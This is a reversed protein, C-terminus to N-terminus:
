RPVGQGRADDLDIAARRAEWQVDLRGLALEAESRYADLLELLSAEGGRYAAEALRSPDGDDAEAPIQGLSALAAVLRARSAERNRLARASERRLAEDVRAREARLREIEPGDANWLGLPLSLSLVAGHGTAQGVQAFRYGAEIAWGRWAPSGWTRAEAELAASEHRLGDIRPPLTASEAELAVPPDPPVLAGVLTPPQAAPALALLQAWAQALLAQERAQQARAVDREREVRRLEFRAADGRKHRATVAAVGAQLRTLWADFVRLREQRLRVDYFATRTASAVQLQAEAGEAQLAREQHPLAARRRQRWGAVDFTQRVSLSTQLYGAANASPVHEHMAALSPTPLQTISAVEARAVRLRAAVQAPADLAALARRAADDATWPEGEAQAKAAPAMVLAFGLCLGLPRGNMPTKFRARWDGFPM